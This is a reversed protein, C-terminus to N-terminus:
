SNPFPLTIHAAEQAGLTADTLAQENIGGNNQYQHGLYYSTPLQSKRHGPAYTFFLYSLAIGVVFGIVIGSGAGIPIFSGLLTCLPILALGFIVRLHKM